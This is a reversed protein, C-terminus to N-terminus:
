QPDKWYCYLCGNKCPHRKNQLLETKCSLCRCFQRNQPNTSDGTMVPLGMLELDTNSICGKTVFHKKYPDPQIIAPDEGCTELKPMTTTSEHETYWDSLVKIVAAKQKRTCQFNVPGYFPQHGSQILRHKVHRYEDMISFRIRAGNKTGILKRELAGDLVAIARKIGEPTPIIPDIRIVLNQKPFGCEVLSAAANLQEDPTFVGPELWTSGWGTCTAHIILPFQKQVLDLVHDGMNKTITKSVLIAGDTEKQLCAQYWRMDRGADGRETIGIKMYVETKIINKCICGNSYLLSDNDLLDKIEPRKGTACPSM